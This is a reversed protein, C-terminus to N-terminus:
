SFKTLGQYRFYEAKCFTLDSGYGAGDRAWLPSTARDDRHTPCPIRPVTHRRTSAGSSVHAASPSTTHNQRRAGPTPPTKGGAVLARLFGYCWQAPFAP